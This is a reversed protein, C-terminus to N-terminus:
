YHLGTSTVNFLSYVTFVLNFSHPGQSAGSTVLTVDQAYSRSNFSHPGQSAGYMVSIVEEAYSRSYLYYNNNNNYVSAIHKPEALTSLAQNLCLPTCLPM